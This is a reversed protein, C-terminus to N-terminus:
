KMGFKNKLWQKLRATVWEDPVYFMIGGVIFLCVADPWVSIRKDYLLYGTLIWIGLGITDTIWDKIIEKM